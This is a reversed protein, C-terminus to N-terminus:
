TLFLIGIGILIVALIKQFLVKKSFEEKLIQPFKFSLIYVLLLLFIYRVGELANVLALLAIPALFIALNQLLVALGGLAQNFLLLSLAKKKLVVNEKFLHQRTKKSLLLCFSAIASGILIWFLGSIFSLSSDYVIKSLFFSLALFFAALGSLKLANLTISKSKEWVILVSGAVLFFFASFEKLGWFTEEKGLTLFGFCESKFFFYTLFFTFIPLIGGLAPTIRSVEFKRLASYYTLLGLIRFIGALVGLVIFLPLLPELFGFPIIILVLLGLAGVFFAYVEPYPLPKKLLYKDILSVAAFLFYAFIIIFLWNM